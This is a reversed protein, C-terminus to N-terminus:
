QLSNDATVPTAATAGKDTWEPPLGITDAVLGTVGPGRGFAECAAEKPAGGLMSGVKHMSPLSPMKRFPSSATVLLKSFDDAFAKALDYADGAASVKPKSTFADAGRAWIMAAQQHRQQDLAEAEVSLGGLGIPIRVSPTPIPIPVFVKEVVTAGVSVVKSVGAMAEDTLGVHTIVAHVSLDASQGPGVIQFRDSLGVCVSRDIANAVMQRQTESLGAHAASESFSTPVVQVTKAALVENANVSVKAHTLVGDAPALSQYSSLAGTQEFPVAACGSTLLLAVLAFTSNSRGGAPANIVPLVNFRRARSM